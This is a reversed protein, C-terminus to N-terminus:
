LGMGSLRVVEENTGIAVMYRGFVTRALVLQAGGVLIVALLFPLSLGLFSTEAIAAVASGIYQTQSNTVFHAGGRAMELMGLTVIFSPLRWHISVLGNFAGCSLGVALACAAALWLPWQFKVLCIGAVAGCLGLVSGVSLDIEAIILIYTMGTAILIASPIQNAITTFTARSFFHETSLSFILVLVALAIATGLYDALVGRLGFPKRTM